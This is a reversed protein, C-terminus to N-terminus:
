PLSSASPSYGLLVQPCDRLALLMLKCAKEAEEATGMVLAFQARYLNDGLTKRLATAEKTPGFRLSGSLIDSTPGLRRVLDTRQEKPMPGDEKVQLYLLMGVSGALVCLAHHMGARMDREEQQTVQQKGSWGAITTQIYSPLQEILQISAYYADVSVHPDITTGALLSQTVQTYLSDYGPFSQTLLAKHEAWPQAILPTASLLTLLYLYQRM